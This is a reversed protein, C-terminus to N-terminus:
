KQHVTLVPCEAGCVISYALASPLHGSTRQAARLGLFILDSLQQRSAALIEKAPKGFRVEYEPTCRAMCQSPLSKSMRKVLFEKVLKNSERPSESPEEVVHLVTLHRGCAVSHALSAARQNHPKFDTPFLIRLLELNNSITSEPPATLIACDAMRFVQEAVSGLVLKKSAGGGHTGMALLEIQRSKIIESITPWLPGEAVIGEEAFGLSKGEELLQKMEREAYARAKLVTETASESSLFRFVGSPIVHLLCLASQFKRGIARACQLASKAGRSFDTLVLIQRFTLEPRVQDGRFSESGLQMKVPLGDVYSSTLCM